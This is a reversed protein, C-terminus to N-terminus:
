STETTVSSLMQYYYLYISIISCRHFSIKSLMHIILSNEPFEPRRPVATAHFILSMSQFLCGVRALQVSAVIDVDSEKRGETALSPTHACRPEGLQSEASFTGTPSMGAQLVASFTDVHHKNRNNHQRRRQMRNSRAPACRWTQVEVARPENQLSHRGRKHVVHPWACQINASKQM